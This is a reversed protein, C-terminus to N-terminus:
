LRHVMQLKQNEIDQKEEDMERQRGMMEYEIERIASRLREMSKISVDFMSSLGENVNFLLILPELNVKEVFKIANLFIQKTEQSFQQYTSM